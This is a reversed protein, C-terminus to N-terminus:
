VLAMEREWISRMPYFAAWGFIEGAMRLLRDAPFAPSKKRWKERKEQINRGIWEIKKSKKMYGDCQYTVITVILTDTM